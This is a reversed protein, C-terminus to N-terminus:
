LVTQNRLLRRSCLINRCGGPAAIPSQSQNLHSWESHDPRNSGTRIRALGYYAVGDAHNGSAIGNYEIGMGRCDFGRRIGNIQNILSGHFRATRIVHGTRHRLRRKLRARNHHLMLINLQNRRGSTRSDNRRHKRGAPAPDARSRAIRRSQHVLRGIDALRRLINHVSTGKVIIKGANRLLFDHSHVTHNILQHVIHQRLLAAIQRRFLLLVLQRGRHQRRLSQIALTHTTVRLRQKPHDPYAHRIINATNDKLTGHFMRQNRRLQHHRNKSNYSCLIKVVRHLLGDPQLMAVTMGSM